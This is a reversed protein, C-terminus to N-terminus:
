LKITETVDPPQLDQMVSLDEPYSKKMGEQHVCHGVIVEQRVHQGAVFSLGCYGARHHLLCKPCVTANCCNSKEFINVLPTM